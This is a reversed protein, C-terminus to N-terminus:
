PIYYVSCPQVAGSAKTNTCKLSITEYRQIYLNYSSVGGTTIGINIDGTTACLNVSSTLSVTIDKQQWEGISALTYTPFTVSLSSNTAKTATITFEVNTERSGDNILYVPVRVEYTFTSNPMTENTEAKISLTKTNNRLNINRSSGTSVSYKVSNVSTPCFWIIGKSSPQTSSVIIKYNLKDATLVDQGGVKLSQFNGSTAVVGGDKSASFNGAGLSIYSDVGNGADIKVVGGASVVFNAGSQITIDGGKMTIGSSTISISSQKSYFSDSESVTAVIAAPTIKAEASSMKTQLETIEGETDEPAPTWDTAKNGKEVKIWHIISKATVTNNNPFRYININAYSADDTPTKGSYYKATFTASVIQKSTGSVNLTCQSSYGGSMYPSIYQVNSAPTICVSKSRPQM